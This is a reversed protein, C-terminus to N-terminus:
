KIIENIRNFKIGEYKIYDITWIALSVRELSSIITNISENQIWKSKINPIENTMKDFEIAILIINLNDLELSKNSNLVRVLLELTIDKAIKENFYENQISSSGLSKGLLPMRPKNKDKFICISLLYVQNSMYFTQNNLWNLM